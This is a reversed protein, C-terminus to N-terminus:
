VPTKNNPDFPAFFLPKKNDNFHTSVVFVLLFSARSEKPPLFPITSEIAVESKTVFSSFSSLMIIPFSSSLTFSCFSIIAFLFLLIETINWLTKSFGAYAGLMAKPYSNWDWTALHTVQPRNNGSKSRAITESYTLGRLAHHDPYSLHFIEKTEPAEM